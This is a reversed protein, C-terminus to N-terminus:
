CGTHAYHLILHVKSSTKDPNKNFFKTLKVLYWMIILNQQHPKYAVMRVTVIPIDSLSFDILLWQQVNDM